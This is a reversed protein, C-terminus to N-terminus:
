SEASTIFQRRELALRDWGPPKVQGRGADIKEGYRLGCVRGAKIMALSILEAEDSGSSSGSPEHSAILEWAAPRDRVIFAVM